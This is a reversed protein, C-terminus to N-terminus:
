TQLEVRSASGVGNRSVTIKQPLADVLEEAHTVLLVQKGPLRTLMDALHRVGDDDLDTVEDILVCDMSRRGLAQALGLRLAVYVRYQEGGSFTEITREVLGDDVVIDLTEGLGGSKLERQTDLRVSFTSGLNQLAENTAQEVGAVAGDLLTAPIGNRSCARELVSLAERRRQDGQVQGVERTLEAEAALRRAAREQAAIQLAEQEAVDRNARDLRSRAEDVLIGAPPELPLVDRESRLADWRGRLQAATPEEALSQELADVATVERRAADLADRARLLARGTEPDAKPAATQELVRSAEVQVERAQAEIERAAAATREADAALTGATGANATLQEAVQALHEGAVIQGCRDCVPQEAAEFEEFAREAQERDRVARKATREAESRTDVARKLAQYAQNAEARLAQERGQAGAVRQLEDNRAAEADAVAQALPDLNVLARRREALAGRRAKLQRGQEVVANIQRTLQQRQRYRELDKERKLAADLEQTWKNVEAQALEFVEDIAEDGGQPGLSSAQALVIAEVEARLRDIRDEVVALGQDLSRLDASFQERYGEYVDLGLLEGLLQKRQGPSMAILRGAQGQPSFVSATFVDETMGLIETLMAQTEAITHTPVTVWGTGHRDWKALSLWPKKGRARGRAVKYRQGDIQFTVTMEGRDVDHSLLEDAGRALGFLAYVIGTLITSKGAGNRGVVSACRVDTLDVTVPEHYSRIGDLTVELLRM